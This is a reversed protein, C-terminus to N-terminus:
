RPLARVNGGSPRGGGLAPIEEMVGMGQLFSVQTQLNCIYCKADRRIGQDLLDITRVKLM